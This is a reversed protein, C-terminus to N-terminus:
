RQEAHQISKVATGVLTERISIRVRDDAQLNLPGIAGGLSTRLCTDLHDDLTSIAVEIRLRCPSKPSVGRGVRVITGRVERESGPVHQALTGILGASVYLSAGGFLAVCVVCWAGWIASSHRKVHVFPVTETNSGAEAILGRALLWASLIGFFSAISVTVPTKWTTTTLHDFGVLVTVIRMLGLVLVIYIARLRDRQAPSARKVLSM